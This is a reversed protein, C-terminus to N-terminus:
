KNSTFDKSTTNKNKTLKPEAKSVRNLYDNVKSLQFVCYRIHAGIM